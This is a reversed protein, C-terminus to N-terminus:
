RKAIEDELRRVLEQHRKVPSIPEASPYALRLVRTLRMAILQAEIPDETPNKEEEFVSPIVDYLAGCLVERMVTESYRNTKAFAIEATMKAKGADIENSFDRDRLLDAAALVAAFDGEQTLAGLLADAALHITDPHHVVFDPAGPIVFECSRTGGCALASARGNLEGRHLEAYADQLSTQAYPVGIRQAIHALTLAYPIGAIHACSGDAGLAETEADVLGTTRLLLTGLAAPNHVGLMESADSIRNDIETIDSAGAFFDDSIVSELLSIMDDPRVDEEGLAKMGARSWTKLVQSLDKTPEGYLDCFTVSALSPQMNLCFEALARYEADTMKSIVELSACADPSIWVHDLGPIHLDTPIVDSGIDANELIQTHLLDLHRPMLLQPPFPSPRGSYFKASYRAIALGIAEPTKAAADSVDIQLKATINTQTTM